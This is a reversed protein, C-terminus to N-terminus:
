KNMVAKSFAAEGLNVEAFSCWIQVKSVDKIYSPLTVSRNMKDGAIKLQNLLYTNGKSDVIQWHPAPTKPTKFDESLTLVLKGKESKASVTGGNVEIGKFAGSTTTMAMKQQAAPAPNHGPTHNAMAPVAFATSFAIAAILTNINNIKM